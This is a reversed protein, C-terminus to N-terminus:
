GGCPPHPYFHGEEPDTRPTPADGEVRLTHISIEKNYTYGIGLPDGEVRLTHISILGSLSM